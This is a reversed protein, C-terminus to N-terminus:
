CYSRRGSGGMIHIQIWDIVWQLKAEPQRSDRVAEDIKREDDPQRERLQQM